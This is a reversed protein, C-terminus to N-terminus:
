QRNATSSTAPLTAPLATPTSRVASRKATAAPQQEQGIVFLAIAIAFLAIVMGIAVGMGSAFDGDAEVDDLTGRAM